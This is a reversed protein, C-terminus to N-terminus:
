AEGGDADDHNGPGFTGVLFDFEMSEWVEVGGDYDLGM